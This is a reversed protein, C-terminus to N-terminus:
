LVEGRLVGQECPTPLDKKLKYYGEWTEDEARQGQWRVLLETVPRNNLPRVRRGLIENPKPQLTGQDNMLPLTTTTAEGKGLRKKLQSIHFFLHIQSTPPLRLRYAVEGM